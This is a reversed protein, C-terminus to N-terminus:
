AAARRRAERELSEKETLWGLGQEALWGGVIAKVEPWSRAVRMTKGLTRALRAQEPSLVGGEAKLEVYTTAGDPWIFSLDPAGRNMGSTKASMVAGPSLRIGSLSATWWVEDPLYARLMAAVHKQLVAEPRGHKARLRFPAPKRAVQRPM